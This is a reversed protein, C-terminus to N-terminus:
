KRQQEQLCTDAATMLTIRNLRSVLSCETNGERLVGSHCHISYPLGQPQMEDLISKINNANVGGGIVLELQGQLQELLWSLRSRADSNMEAEPWHCGSSLVRDVTSTRLWEVAELPSPVADFARHFTVSLQLQEAIDLLYENAKIDPQGRSDLVGFVVGDAGADALERISKGMQRVEHESYNFDGGRPRIMALVGRTPGWFERATKVARKCPTLGHQEMDGCLEIRRAGGYQAAMVNRPLRGLDDTSLCIELTPLRRTM